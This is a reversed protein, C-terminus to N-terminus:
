KGTFTSSLFIKVVKNTPPTLHELRGTFVYFPLQEDDPIWKPAPKRRAWFPSPVDIPDVSVINFM